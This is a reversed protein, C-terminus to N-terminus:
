PEDIKEGKLNKKDNLGLNKKQQYQAKAREKFKDKNKLYYNKKQEKIKDKKEEKYKRHNLILDSKNNAYYQKAKEKNELNYKKQKELLRERNLQYYTPKPAEINIEM